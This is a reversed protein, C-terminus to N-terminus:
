LRCALCAALRQDGQYEGAMAAWCQAVSDMYRSSVPLALPLTTLDIWGDWTAHYTGNILRNIFPQHSPALAVKQTLPRRITEEQTITPVTTFRDQLFSM